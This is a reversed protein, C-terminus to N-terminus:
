TLRKGIEDAVDKSIPIRYESRERADLKCLAWNCFRWPLPCWRWCMMAGIIDELVAKWTTDNCLVVWRDYHSEEDTTDKSSPIHKYKLYFTWM